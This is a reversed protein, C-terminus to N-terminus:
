ADFCPIISLVGFIMINNEKRKIDRVSWELTYKLERRIKERGEKCVSYKKEKRERERKITAKLSKSTQRDTM